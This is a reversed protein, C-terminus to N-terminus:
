SGTPVFAADDSRFEWPNEGAQGLAELTVPLFSGGTRFFQTEVNETVICKAMVLRGDKTGDHIDIVVSRQDLSEPDPPNFQYFTGEDTVTGGFALELTATNWQELTFQATATRATVLYRLTYFSQWAGIRDTTKGDVFRVGDETVFGVETWGAGAAELGTPITAGFDAVYVEGNGAVILEASDQTM